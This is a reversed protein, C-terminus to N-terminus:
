RGAPADAKSRGAAKQAKKWERVEALAEKSSVDAASRPEDDAFPGAFEEWGTPRRDFRKALVALFIRSKEEGFGPLVRIADYVPEASRRGEWIRAPDGDHHEVLHRALAHVRRAMAAPYRHLAPKEAFIAVLEEEDMDAIEVAEFRDGLRQRLVHPSRFAWEMPVQQDLLMGIVLALPDETLLRNADDDDSIPFSVKAM